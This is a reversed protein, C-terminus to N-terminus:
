PQQYTYEYKELINKDLDRTLVLRGLGDYEFFVPINNEDLQLQVGILPEIDFTVMGGDKPIIRLEDVLVGQANVLTVLDSTSTIAIPVTYRNWTSGSIAITEM